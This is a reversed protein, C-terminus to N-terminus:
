DKVLQSADSAAPEIDYIKVPMRECVAKVVCDPADKQVVSENAFVASEGDQATEARAFQVMQGQSSAQRVDLDVPSKRKPEDQAAALFRSSARRLHQQSM